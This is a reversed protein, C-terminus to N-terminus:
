EVTWKSKCYPCANNQKIIQYPTANLFHRCKPCVYHRILADKVKKENEIDKKPATFRVVLLILMLVFTVVLFIMRLNELQPICACIIGGTSLLGTVSSVATLMEKRLRIARLGEEYEDWVKELPSINFEQSLVGAASSLITNVDVEYEDVGLEIKLNGMLPLVKSDFNHGGSGTENEEKLNKVRVQSQNIVEVSCHANGLGQCRSVSQPVTGKVDMIVEKPQGDVSLILKLNKSAADRGVYITKGILRQDM